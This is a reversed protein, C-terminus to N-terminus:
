FRSAANKLTVKTAGKIPVTLKQARADGAERVTCKNDTFLTGGTQWVLVDGTSREM